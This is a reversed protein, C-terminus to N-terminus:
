PARRRRAITLEHALNGDLRVLDEIPVIAVLPHGYRTIVVPKKTRRVRMIVDALDRRAAATTLKLMAAVWPVEDSYFDVNNYLITWM